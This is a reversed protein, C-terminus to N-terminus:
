FEFFFSILSVNAFQNARINEIRIRIAITQIMLSEILLVLNLPGEFRFYLDRM